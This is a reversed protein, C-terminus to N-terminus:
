PRIKKLAATVAPNKGCAQTALGMKMLLGPIKEKNRTALAQKQAATQRAGWEKLEVFTQKNTAAYAELSAALKDCDTGAKTFIDVIQDLMAVSKDEMAQDAPSVGTAAAAQSGSPTPKTDNCGLTLVLLISLLRM